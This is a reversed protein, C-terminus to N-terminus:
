GKNIHEDIVSQWEAARHQISRMRSEMEDDTICGVLKTLSKLADAQVELLGREANTLSPNRADRILSGIASLITVIVPSM